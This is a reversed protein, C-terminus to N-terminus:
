VYKSKNDRGPMQFDSVNGIKSPLMYNGPGPTNM